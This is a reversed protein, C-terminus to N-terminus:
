FFSINSGTIYSVLRILCYYELPILSLGPVTWDPLSLHQLLIIVRAWVTYWKIKHIWQFNLEVGDRQKLECDSFWVLCVGGSCCCCFVPRHVAARITSVYISRINHTNICGINTFTTQSHTQSNQWSSISFHAGNYNNFILLGHDM